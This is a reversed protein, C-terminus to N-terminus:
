QSCFIRKKAITCGYYKALYNKWGPNVFQSFGQYRPEDAVEWVTQTWKGKVQECTINRKGM